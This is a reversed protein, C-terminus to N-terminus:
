KLGAKEMHVSKGVRRAVNFPKENANNLEGLTVDHQLCCSLCEASGSLCCLHALTNGDESFSFIESLLSINVNFNHM